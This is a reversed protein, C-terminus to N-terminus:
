VGSSGRARLELLASRMDAFVGDWDGRRHQRFLRTNEYWPTDARELMWRWDPVHQLAIWCPRGLAGALHAIATDSTIILDLHEMVAASDLFAQGGADFDDGLTEIRLEQGFSALEESGDNKQLSILRVDALDAFARFSELSFSRGLDVKAAKNGQWAIGIKFGKQGLRAGWTEARHLDASLYAKAHPINKDSTGFLGPLSLLAVHYHATPVVDARSVVAIRPDLNGLLSQLAPQVRLTVQAGLDALLTAYRCFQITDGLGQEASVLIKRGKAQYLHKLDPYPTDNAGLANRGRLKRNEFLAWGEQFQGLLLLLLAKNYAPEPRGPALAQARSYCALADDFRGAHFLADALNNQIEPAHPALTSAHELLALADDIRGLHLLSVALNNHAEPYTQDEGLAAEFLVAAEAYRRLGNLARGQLIRTQLHDSQATEAQAIDALAEDYQGSEILASVYNQFIDLSDPARARLIKLEKSAALANGIAMLCAALNMAAHLHDPALALVQRYAQVAQAHHHGMNLAVGLNYSLEPDHPRLAQARKLMDICNALRDTRAYIEALLLLADANRKDRKLILRCSKEAPGLAGSQFQQRAEALNM